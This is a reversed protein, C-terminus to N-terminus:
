CMEDDADKIYGKSQTQRKVLSPIVGTIAVHLFSEGVDKM